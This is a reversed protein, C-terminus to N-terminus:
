WQPPASRRHPSGNWESLPASQWWWDAPEPPLGSLPRRGTAWLLREFGVGDTPTWPLVRDVTAGAIAEIEDPIDSTALDCADNTHVIIETCTMGIWGTLDALGSPHFAREDVGFGTLLRELV